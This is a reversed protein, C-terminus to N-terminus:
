QEVEKEGGLIPDNVAFCYSVLVFFLKFYIEIMDHQNAFVMGYWTPEQEPGKGFLQKM